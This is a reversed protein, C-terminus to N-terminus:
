TYSREARTKREKRQDARVPASRTRCRTANCWVDTYEHPGADLTPEFLSCEMGYVTQLYQGHSIDRPAHADSSNFLPLVDDLWLIRSNFSSAEILSHPELINLCSSASLLVTVTRASLLQPRKHRFVARWRIRLSVKRIHRCNYALYHGKRRNKMFSSVVEPFTDKLNDLDNRQADPHTPACCQDSAESANIVCPWVIVSSSRASVYWVFSEREWISGSIDIRWAYDVKVRLCIIFSENLCVRVHQMILNQSSRRFVPWVDLLRATSSRQCHKHCIM